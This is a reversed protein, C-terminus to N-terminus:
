LRLVDGGASFLTPFEGEGGEIVALPGNGQATRERDIRWRHVGLQLRFVKRDSRHLRIVRLLHLDEQRPTRDRRFSVNREIGRLLLRQAGPEAPFHGHVIEGGQVLGELLLEQFEGAEVEAAHLHPVVRRADDEPLDGQRVEIGADDHVRVARQVDLPDHRLFARPPSLAVSVGPGGAAAGASLATCTGRTGM